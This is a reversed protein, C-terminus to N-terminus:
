NVHAIVWDDDIYELVLSYKSDRSCNKNDNEQCLRINEKAEIRQDNAKVLILIEENVDKMAIASEVYLTDFLTSPGSFLKEEILVDQRKTIETLENYYLQYFDETVYSKFTNLFSEKIVIYNEDDSQQYGEAVESIKYYEINALLQKLEERKNEVLLRIEQESMSSNNIFNHEVEQDPTDIFINEKEKTFNFATLLILIFLIAVSLICGINLWEKKNM